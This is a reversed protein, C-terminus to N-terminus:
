ESVIDYTQEFIDSKCPYFEGRVGKIICDGVKALHDGELTHIILGEFVRECHLYNSNSYESEYMTFKPECAPCWRMIEDINDLKLKMCEIEIPKKVAKM